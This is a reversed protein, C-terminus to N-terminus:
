SGPAAPCVLLDCSLQPQVREITNGEIARELAGRTTAGMVVLTGAVKGGEAPVVREPQGEVMLLQAETIGSAKLLPALAQRHHQRLASSQGPDASAIDADFLLQPSLPAYCHLLNLDAGTHTAISRATEIIERQPRDGPVGDPPTVVCALIRQLPTRNFPIWVPLPSRRLLEGEEPPLLLARMPHHRVASKVILADSGPPCESLLETVPAASYLLQAEADPHQKRTEALLGHLWRRHVEIWQERERQRQEENLLPNHELDSDFGQAVLKIHAGSLGAIFGARDLAPQPDVAPVLVVYLQRIADIKM